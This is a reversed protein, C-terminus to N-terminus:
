TTSGRARPRVRVTYTGAEAASATRRPAATEAWTRAANSSIELMLMSSNARPFSAQTARTLSTTATTALM